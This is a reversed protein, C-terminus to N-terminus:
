LIVSDKNNQEARSAVLTLSGLSCPSRHCNRLYLLVLQLYYIYIYHNAIYGATCAKTHGMLQNGGQFSKSYFSESHLCM